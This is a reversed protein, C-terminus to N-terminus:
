KNFVKLDKSTVGYALNSLLIKSGDDRNRRTKFPRGDKNGISSKTNLRKRRNQLRSKRNKKILDNLSIDLAMSSM